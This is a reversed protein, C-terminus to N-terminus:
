RREKFFIKLLEGTENALVGGECQVFHNAMNSSKKPDHAGYVCRKIRAHTMASMCMPCPELTVYLTAGLLRYNKLKKAASRLAMIEAHASPDHRSIPTNYGRGVVKNEIVVLAGVPVEGKEQALRALALAQRMWVLDNMANGM